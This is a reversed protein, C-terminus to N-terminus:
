VANLSLMICTNYWWGPYNPSTRTAASFSSAGTAGANDMVGHAVFMNSITGTASYTDDVVENLTPSTAVAESNFTVAYSRMMGAFIVMSGATATTMSATGTNPSASNYRGVPTSDERTTANNNYYALVVSIPRTGSSGAFTWSTGTLGNAGVIATYYWIRGDGVQGTRNTWGTPAGTRAGSGADSLIAVLIDGNQIGAPADVTASHTVTGVGRLTIPTASVYNRLLHSRM